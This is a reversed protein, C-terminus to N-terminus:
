WVMNITRTHFSLLYNFVYLEDYRFIVAIKDWMTWLTTFINREFLPVVIRYKKVPINITQM